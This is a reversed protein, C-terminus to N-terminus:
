GGPLTPPRHRHQVVWDANEALAECGLEFLVEQALALRQPQDGATDFECMLQQTLKQEATDFLEAMWEFKRATLAYTQLDAYEELFAALVLCGFTALVLDHSMHETVIHWVVHLVSLAMALFFALKSATEFAVEFQYHLPAKKVFYNLQDVVWYNRVTRLREAQRVVDSQKTATSKEVAHGGAVLFIARISHRIWDLDGRFHRLYFDATCETRGALQWFVQVRLTEALARLDLWRGQWDSRQSSRFWRYGFWLLLPYAALVYWEHWAHAYTEHAAVAVAAIVFLWRVVRQSRGQYDLAAVDARAYLDLLREICAGARAAEDAPLLYNRSTQLDDSLPAVREADRNFDDIARWRSLLIDRGHTGQSTHGFLRPLRKNLQVFWTTLQQTLWKWARQSWPQPSEASPPEHKKKKVPAPLPPYEIGLQELSAGVVRNNPVSECHPSIYYIATPRSADLAGLQASFPASTGEHHWRVVQQTQSDPRDEDRDCIAILIQAHRAIYKGIEAYQESQQDPQSRLEALRAPDCPMDIQYTARDLLNQFPQPDGYRDADLALQQRPWPFLAALAVGNGAALATEAALQDSGAVLPSLLVLPTHPYQQRLARLLTAIQARIADIHASAIHRPGTVGLLLPVALTDPTISPKPSSRPM